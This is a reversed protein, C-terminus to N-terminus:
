ITGVKAVLDKLLTRFDKAFIIFFLWISFLKLGIKNGLYKIKMTIYAIANLYGSLPYNQTIFLM